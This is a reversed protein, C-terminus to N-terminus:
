AVADVPLLILPRHPVSSDMEPDATRQERSTAQRGAVVIGVQDRDSQDVHSAGFGEAALVALRQRPVYLIAAFLRNLVGLDTGAAQDLSPTTRIRSMIEEAPGEVRGKEVLKGVSWSIGKLAEELAKESIDNLMVRLGAQACAQAIGRGMTGSGAIFVKDIAM